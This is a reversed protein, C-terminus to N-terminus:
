DPSQLNTRLTVQSTLTADYISEPLFALLYGNQRYPVDVQVNIRTAQGTAIPVRDEDLFRVTTNAGQIGTIALGEAVAEQADQATSGQVM